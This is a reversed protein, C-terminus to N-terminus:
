AKYNKVIKAYEIVPKLSGDLILGSYPDTYDVTSSTIADVVEMGKVVRGFSAYKGDLAYSNNFSTESVIFFQSTASDYSNGKRAMSITGREHPIPNNYGNVAFEGYITKGSGGTGDAKPDGGQIMFGDVVRHFTLGDYFGDKVLGVFNEVTVPAAEKDLELIITGYDKVKMEVYVLKDNGCATLALLAGVALTLALILSVIRKM